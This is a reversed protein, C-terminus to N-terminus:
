RHLLHLRRPGGRAWCDISLLIPPLGAEPGLPVDASLVAGRNRKGHKTSLTLRSVSADQFDQSGRFPVTTQEHAVYVDVTKKNPGPRLGVGDPLGEFTFDGVKDGSSIIPSIKAGKPLGTPLASCRRKAPAFARVAPNRTRRCQWTGHANGHNHSSRRDNSAQEHLWHDNVRGSITM